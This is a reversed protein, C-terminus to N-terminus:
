LDSFFLAKLLFTLTPSISKSYLVHNELGRICSQAVIKVLPQSFILPTIQVEEEGSNCNSPLQTDERRGHM